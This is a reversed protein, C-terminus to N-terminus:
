SVAGYLTRQTVTLIASPDEQGEILAALLLSFLLRAFAEPPFADSFAGPRVYPDRRIVETLQGTMHQWVRDRHPRVAEGSSALRAAHRAFFGPYQQRGYALRQFLWVICAKTDTFCAGRGPCFIEQWVSEVTAATLDDKSDFYHYVTGVSVGCASALSRITLADWGQRRVLERAAALIAPRSTAKPQM